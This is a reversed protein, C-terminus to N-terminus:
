LNQGLVFGSLQPKPVPFLSTPQKLFFSWISRQPFLYLRPGPFGMFDQEAWRSSLPWPRPQHCHRQPPLGLSIFSHPWLFTLLVWQSRLNVSFDLDFIINETQCALLFNSVLVLFDSPACPLKTKLWLSQAGVPRGLRQQETNMM